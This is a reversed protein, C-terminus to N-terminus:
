SEVYLVCCVSTKKQGVEGLINEPDMWSAAPPQIEHSERTSNDDISYTCTHTHTHTSILYICVRHRICTHICMVEEEGTCRNISWLHTWTEPITFLAVTSVTHRKWVTKWLPQVKRKEAGERAIVTHLSKIIAMSVPSPYNQNPAYNTIRLM